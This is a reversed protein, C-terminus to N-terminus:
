MKIFISMLEEVLRALLSWKQTLMEMVPNLPVELFRYQAVQKHSKTLSM